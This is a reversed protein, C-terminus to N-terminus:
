KDHLITTSKTEPMSESDPDSPSGLPESSDPESQDQNCSSEPKMYDQKYIGIYWLLCRANAFMARKVWKKINVRRENSRSRMGLEKKLSRRCGIGGVRCM